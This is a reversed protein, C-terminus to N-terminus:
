ANKARHSMANGLFPLAGPVVVFGRWFTTEDIGVHNGIDGVIRKGGPRARLFM